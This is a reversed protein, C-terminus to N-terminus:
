LKTNFKFINPTTRRLMDVKVKFARILIERNANRLLMYARSREGNIYYGIEFKGKEEDKFIDLKAEEECAQMTDPLIIDSIETGVSTEEEIRIQMKYGMRSKKNRKSLKGEHYM